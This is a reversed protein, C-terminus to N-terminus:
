PMTRVVRVGVFNGRNDAAIAVRAASRTLRSSEGWSGGRFVRRSCVPDTWATGDTPANIFTDHWCDQTWEWVNGHVDFLGFGNPKKEGAPHTHGDSGKSFWAFEGLRTDEAGFSYRTTSRARAAFEWEAESPLRYTKGTKQSLWKVYAQADNWSLCVAPHQDSQEFGPNRWSTGAGKNLEGNQWLWCGDGQEAETKYGSDEAFRAFEGRKLEFRGIAINASIGVDHQPVENSKRGIENEPAGMLFHGKPLVVVEPCDSCDKMVSGAGYVAQASAGVASLSLLLGALWGAVRAPNFSTKNM